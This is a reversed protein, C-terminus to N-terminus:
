RNSLGAESLAIALAQRRGRVLPGKKGKKGTGSHLSGAAYERMVTEVKAQGRKRAM